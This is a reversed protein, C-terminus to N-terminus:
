GKFIFILNEDKLFMDFPRKVLQSMVTHTGSPRMHDHLEVMLVKVKSLWEMCHAEFVEKESGEIDLKVIDFHPIGFLNAIEQISFAKLGTPSHSEKVEYAWESAQDNMIELYTERDWLGANCVRINPNNATNKLLMEFNGKNPEVAVITAEPFKQAFYLASLGINAGGDLIYDPDINLSIDYQRDGVIQLLVDLDTTGPRLEFPCDIGKVKYIRQRLVFYKFMLWSGGLFGQSKFAKLALVLLRKRRYAKDM